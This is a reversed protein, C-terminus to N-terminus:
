RAVDHISTKKSHAKHRMPITLIETDSWGRKHRKHLASANLNLEEAWATICQTKGLYTLEINRRTNRHQEKLTSYKLNGPEYNGDNDIRDLSYGKKGCNPLKIVYDYFAQFDHRWEPYITIGRGGYNNYSTNKPNGCRLNIAHWVIFLPHKTLGHATRQTTNRESLLEKNLCGCSHTCNSRLSDTLIVTLNGCDCLCEWAIKNQYRTPVLAVLRGLRQGTLNLARKPLTIYQNQM